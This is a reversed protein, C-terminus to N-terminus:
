ISTKCKYIELEKLTNRIRQRFQMARLASELSIAKPDMDATLTLRADAHRLQETLKGVAADLKPTTWAM